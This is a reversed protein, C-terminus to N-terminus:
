KKLSVLKNTTQKISKEIKSSFSIRMIDLFYFDDCVVVIDYYYGETAGGGGQVPHGVEGGCGGFPFGVFIEILAMGAKAGAELSSPPAGIFGADM